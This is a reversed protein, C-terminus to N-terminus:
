EKFEELEKFEEFKWGRGIRKGSSPGSWLGMM